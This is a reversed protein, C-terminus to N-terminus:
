SNTTMGACANNGNANCFTQADTLSVQYSFALSTPSAYYLSGQHRVLACIQAQQAANNWFATCDQLVQQPNLAPNSAMVSQWRTIILDLTMQKVAQSCDAASAIRGLGVTDFGQASAYFVYPHDSGIVATKLGPIIEVTTAQMRTIKQGYLETFTDRPHAGYVVIPITNGPAGAAPNLFLKVLATQYDHFFQIPILGWTPDGVPAGSADKTKSGQDDEAAIPTADVVRNYKALDATAVGNAALLEECRVPVPDM